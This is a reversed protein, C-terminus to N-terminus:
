QFDVKGKSIAIAENDPVTIKQGNPFEFSCPGNQFDVMGRPDVWEGIPEADSKCQVTFEYNVGDNNIVTVGAWSSGFAAILVLGAATKAACNM